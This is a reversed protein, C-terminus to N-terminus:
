KKTKPLAPIAMGAARAAFEEMSAGMSANIRGGRMFEPPRENVDGFVVKEPAEYVKFAKDSEDEDNVAAKKARIMEKRKQERARRKEKQRDTVLKKNVAGM